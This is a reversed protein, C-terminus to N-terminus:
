GKAPLFKVPAPAACVDGISVTLFYDGPKAGLPARVNMQRANEGQPSAIYEVALRMGGIWVQVNNRDANEPLGTVWLSIVAGEPLELQNPIWSSGDCLGTIALVETRLPIDVAIRMANSLGSTATRLRM